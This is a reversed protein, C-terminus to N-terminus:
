SSSSTMTNIRPYAKRAPTMNIFISPSHNQFVVDGKLELITVDGVTRESIV